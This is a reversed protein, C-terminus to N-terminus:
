ELCEQRWCTAGKGVEVVYRSFSCCTVNIVRASTVSGRRSLEIDNSRKEPDGRGEGGSGKGGWGM